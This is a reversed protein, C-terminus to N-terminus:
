YIIQFIILIRTMKLLYIMSWQFGLMIYTFFDVFHQQNSWGQLDQCKFLVLLWFSVPESIEKWVMKKISWINDKFYTAEKAMEGRSETSKIKVLDWFKSNHQNMGPFLLFWKIRCYCREFFLMNNKGEM